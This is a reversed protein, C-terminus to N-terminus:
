EGVVDTENADVFVDLEVFLNLRDFEWGTIKGLISIGDGEGSPSSDLYAFCRNKENQANSMKAFQSNKRNRAKKKAIKQM